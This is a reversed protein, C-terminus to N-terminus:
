METWPIQEYRFGDPSGVEKYGMARLSKHGPLREPFAKILEAAENNSYSSATRFLNDPDVGIKESADYLPAMRIINDRIDGGRGDEIILAILGELLRKSSKERRGISAMREAFALLYVSFRTGALDTFLLREDDSVSLYFTILRTIADDLKHPFPEQWYTTCEEAMERIIGNLDDTTSM